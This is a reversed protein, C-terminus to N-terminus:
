VSLYRSRVSLDWVFLAVAIWILVFCGLRLPDLPEGLMLGILFVLTPAVFQMFGLTSLALRRAAYGFMILPVGSIVGTSAILVAIWGGRAVAPVHGGAMAIGAWALALPLLLATEITLGTVAGVPTTKRLLGYVSFSGALVLAIGLTDLAGGLLLAVGLGAFGVAAWQRRGLREGLLVTGFLVNVLPNIYYGLSTALVHHHVVASVYTTWNIGIALASAGLRLMVARNRLSAGLEAWGRSVAVFLACVPLTVIVRWAVLEFPPVASLAHFVLPLFGWLLYAGLGAAFGSRGRDHGTHSTM